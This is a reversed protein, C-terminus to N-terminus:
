ENEKKAIREIATELGAIAKDTQDRLERIRGIQLRLINLEDSVSETVPSDGIGYLLWTPSVGLVGCLMILRNARPESRDSEWSDVTTKKIGLNKGLEGPALGAAERARYIRGGMSDRDRTEGYISANITM